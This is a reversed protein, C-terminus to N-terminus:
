FILGTLDQIHNRAFERVAQENVKNKQIRQDKSVISELTPDVFLFHVKLYRSNTDSPTPITITYRAFSKNICFVPTKPDPSIQLVIGEFINSIECSIKEFKQSFSIGDSDTMLYIEIDQPEPDIDGLLLEIVYKVLKLLDGKGGEYKILYNYQSNKLLKKLQDSERNYKTKTRGNNEHFICFNHIKSPKHKDGIVESIIPVDHKGETLFIFKLKYGVCIWNWIWSNKRQKM